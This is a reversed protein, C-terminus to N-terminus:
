GLILWLGGYLLPLHLLYIWLSNKGLNIFVRQWTRPAKLQVFKKYLLNGLGTGILIVGFWPILPYFDLSAFSAPTFGLAILPLSDIQIQGVTTGLSIIIIGVAINLIGFQALPISLLISAGMLHLIGFWVAENPFAFLSALTIIMGIGFLRLGRKLNIQRAKKLGKEQYIIATVVGVMIMFLLAAIRGEYFWFGEYYKLQKFGFFYNLNFVLHFTVVMLIAIGRLFDPLWIRQKPISNM